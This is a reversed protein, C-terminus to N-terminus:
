TYYVDGKSYDMPYIHGYFLMAIVPKDKDFPYTKIFEARTEFYRMTEPDCLTVEPVERAEHPRPLDKVGGYDRLVLLLMNYINEYDAVM